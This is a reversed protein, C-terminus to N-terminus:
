SARRDRVVDAWGIRPPSTARVRGNPDTVEFTADPLLVLNSLATPGHDTVWVLHHGECWPPCATAAASRGTTVVRHLACYCPFTSTTAADLPSRRRGAARAPM